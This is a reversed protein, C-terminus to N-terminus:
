DQGSVGSLRRRKRRTFVQISFIENTVIVIETAQRQLNEVGSRVAEITEEILRKVLCRMPWSISMCELLM